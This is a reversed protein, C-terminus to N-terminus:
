LPFDLRAVQNLELTVNSVTAIQFGAHEVKVNYVGVPLRPLNYVGEGNTATPWETGRNADTATVKADVIAGGAPDTVRGTVAPRVEQAPSLAPFILSAVLLCLAGHRRQRIFKM